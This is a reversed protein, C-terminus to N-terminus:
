PTGICQLAVGALGASSVLIEQGQPFVGVGVDGDQFLGLRLVRLQLLGGAVRAGARALAALARLEVGVQVGSSRLDAPTTGGRDGVDRVRGSGHRLGSTSKEYGSGEWGANRARNGAGTGLDSANIIASGLHSV